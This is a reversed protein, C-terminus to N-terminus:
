RTTFGTFTSTSTLSERRLELVEALPPGSRLWCELQQLADDSGLAVVEVSGDPLNRAFGQVGLRAAQERTAARFCVGQVKGSVLFRVTSM